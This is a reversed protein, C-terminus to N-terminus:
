LGFFSCPAPRSSLTWLRCSITIVLLLSLFLASSSGLPVGLVGAVMWEMDTPPPPTLRVCSLTLFPLSAPTVSLRAVPMSQIFAAIRCRGTCILIRRTSLWFSLRRTIWCYTATDVNPLSGAGRFSAVEKEEKKGMTKRLETTTYSSTRTHQTRLHNTRRAGISSGHPQLM